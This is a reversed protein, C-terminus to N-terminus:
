RRVKFPMDSKDDVLVLGYKGVKLPGTGADGMSEFGEVVTVTSPPAPPTPPPPPPPPCHAPQHSIDVIFFSLSAAPYSGLRIRRPGSDSM